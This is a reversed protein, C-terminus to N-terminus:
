KIKSKIGSHLTTALIQQYILQFILVNHYSNVTLHFMEMFGHTDGRHFKRDVKLLHVNAETQMLM